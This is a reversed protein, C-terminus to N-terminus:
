PVVVKTEVSNVAIRCPGKSVGELSLTVKREFPILALSAVANRPRATIVTIMYGDAFKQEQVDHIGTASDPFSGRITVLLQPPQTATVEAHVSEVNALKLMSGETPSDTIPVMSDSEKTKSNQLGTCSSLVALLLAAACVRRLPLLTPSMLALSVALTQFFVRNSFSFQFTFFSFQFTV